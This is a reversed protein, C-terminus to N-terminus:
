YFNLYFLSHARTAAPSSLTRALTVRTRWKEYLNLENNNCVDPALLFDYNDAAVNHAGWTWFYAIPTKWEEMIPLFHRATTELEREVLFKPTVWIETKGANRVMQAKKYGTHITIYLGTDGFRSLDFTGALPNALSAIPIGVKGVDSGPTPRYFLVGRLFRLYIEEYGRAIDPTLPREIEVVIPNGLRTAIGYEPGEVYVSRESMAASFGLKGAEKDAIEVGESGLLCTIHASATTLRGSLRAEMLMAEATKEELYSKLDTQVGKDHVSDIIEVDDSSSFIPGISTIYM